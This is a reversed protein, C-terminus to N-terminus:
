VNFPSRFFCGTLPLEAHLIAKNILNSSFSKLCLVVNPEWRDVLFMDLTVTPVFTGLSFLQLNLFTSGAGVTTESVPKNKCWEIHVRAVTACLCDRSNYGTQRM